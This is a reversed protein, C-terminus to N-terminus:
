PAPGPDSVVTGAGRGRIPPSILGIGRSVLGSRSASHSGSAGGREAERGRREGGRVVERELERSPGEGKLRVEERSGTDGGVM